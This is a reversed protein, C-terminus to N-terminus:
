GRLAHGYRFGFMDYNVELAEDGIDRETSFVVGAVLHVEERALVVGVRVGERIVVHHVAVADGAGPSVGLCTM